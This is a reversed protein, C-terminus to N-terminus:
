QSSRRTTVVLVGNGGRVGYLSASAGKLVEVRQVDAPNMTLLGRTTQEVGDVIILADPSGTFTSQGRVEVWMRSGSRRLVVGPIRGNLLEEMTTVGTPIEDRDLADSDSGVLEQTLDPASPRAYHCGAIAGALLLRHTVTLIHRGLRSLGLAM